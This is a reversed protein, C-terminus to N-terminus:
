KERAQLYKIFGHVLNKKEDPIDKIRSLNNHASAFLEEVRGKAAELAGADRFIGQVANLESDTIIPKGYYQRLQEYASGGLNKVFSYLLTQKYESIDSGINKGLRQADSYIGLIDDQIQFAVGLDDAVQEMQRLLAPSAGGLLMGSCLPGITTYCSTKLHYIDYILTDLPLTQVYRADERLGCRELYSLQVDLMEGEITHIVMKHYYSLLQALLPHQGYGEVLREEALYLGMDGLCLAISCGTEMADADDQLAHHHEMFERSYATHITEMGRRSGAHDIIDDHVLIATQFLEFCEALADAVALGDDSMVCYGLYALAGRLRKGGCNMRSLRNFGDQIIPNRSRTQAVNWNAINKEMRTCVENYFDLFTNM